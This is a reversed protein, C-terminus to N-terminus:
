EIALDLLRQVESAKIFHIIGNGARNIVGAFRLQFELNQLNIAFAPGGSLGNPDFNMESMTKCRRIADDSPDPLPECTISRTVTGLHNEDPIEYRQDEFPCGYALYATVEHEDSQITEESFHFFGQKLSPLSDVQESFNFACLDTADSDVAISPIDWRTYGSSTILSRRDRVLIGVDNLPLNRLQHLTSVLFFNGKYQLATASGILQIQFESIHTYRALNHCFRHLRSHLANAPVFLGHVKISTWVRQGVLTGLDSRRQLLVGLDQM